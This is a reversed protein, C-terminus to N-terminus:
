HASDQTSGQQARFGARNAEAIAQQLYAVLHEAMDDLEASQGKQANLAKITDTIAATLSDARASERAAYRALKENLDQGQATRTFNDLIRQWPAQESESM